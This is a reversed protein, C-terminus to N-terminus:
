GSLKLLFPLIVDRRWGAFWPHHIEKGGLRNRTSRIQEKTTPPLGLRNAQKRLAEGSAYGIAKAAVERTVFEPLPNTLATPESRVGRREREVAIKAECLRRAEQIRQNFYVSIENKAVQCRNVAGQEKRSQAQLERVECDCEARLLEITAPENESM